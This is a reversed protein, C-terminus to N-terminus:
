WLQSRDLVDLGAEPKGAPHRQHCRGRPQGADQSASRQSKDRFCLFVFIRVTWDNEEAPPADIM